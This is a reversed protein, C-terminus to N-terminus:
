ATSPFQAPLYCHNVPFPFKDTKYPLSDRYANLWKLYVCTNQSNTSNLYESGRFIELQITADNFQLICLFSM